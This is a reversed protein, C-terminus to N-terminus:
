RDVMIIVFLPSSRYGNSDLFVIGFGEHQSSSVYIDSMNLLQFKEEDSVNGFFFINDSVNLEKGLSEWDQNRLGM